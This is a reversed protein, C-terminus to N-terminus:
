GQRSRETGDPPWPQRSRFPESDPAAGPSCQGVADMDAGIRRRDIRTEGGRRIRRGPAPHDVGRRRGGFSGSTGRHEPRLLKPVVGSDRAAPRDPEGAPCRGDAGNVGDAGRYGGAWPPDFTSSKRCRSAAPSRWTSAGCPVGSASLLLGDVIVRIRLNVSGRRGAAPQPHRRLGDQPAPRHRPEQDQRPQPPHLLRRRPDAYAVGNTLMHWIALLM